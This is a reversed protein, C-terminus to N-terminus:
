KKNRERNLIEEVLPRLVGNSLAEHIQPELKELLKAVVSDVVASDMGPNKAVAASIADSLATQEPSTHSTEVADVQFQEPVEKRAPIEAAPIEARPEDPADYLRQPVVKQPEDTAETRDEGSYYTPEQADQAVDVSEGTPAESAPVFAFEQPMRFLIPEPPPASKTQQASASEPEPETQRVSEADPTYNPADEAKTIAYKGSSGNSSETAAQSSVQEEEVVARAEEAEVASEDAETEAHEASDTWKNLGTPTSSEIKEPVNAGGFPVHAKGRVSTELTEDDSVVAGSALKEVMNASEAA